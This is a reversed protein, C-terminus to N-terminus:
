TNEGKPAAPLPLWHTVVAGIRRGRSFWQGEGHYNGLYHLSFVQGFMSYIGRFLVTEGIEPLNETVPIWRQAERLRENEEILRDLEAYENIPVVCVLGFLGTGFPELAESTCRLELSAWQERLREVEDELACVYELTIGSLYPKIFEPKFDIIKKSSM